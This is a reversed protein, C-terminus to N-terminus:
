ISWAVLNDNCFVALQEATEKMGTSLWYNIINEMAGSWMLRQYKKATTINPNHLVIDNVLSLYESQFGADFILKVVDARQEVEAFFNLYWQLDTKERFPSGICKIFEVNLQIVIARLIEDKTAYNGYFATRSVGAKKCLEVISIKEYPKQKLLLLLATQLSSKVLANVDESHKKLGWLRSEDLNVSRATKNKANSM